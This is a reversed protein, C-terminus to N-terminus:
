GHSAQHYHDLVKREAFHATLCEVPDVGSTAGSLPEESSEITGKTIDVFTM